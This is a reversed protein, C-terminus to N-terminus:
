RSRAAALYTALGLTAFLITAILMERDSSWDLSVVRGFIETQSEPEYDAVGRPIPDSFVATAFTAAAIAELLSAIAILPWFLRHNLGLM